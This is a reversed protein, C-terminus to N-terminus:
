GRDRIGKWRPAAKWLESVEVEGLEKEKESHSSERGSPGFELISVRVVSRRLDGSFSTCYRRGGREYCTIGRDARATISMSLNWPM